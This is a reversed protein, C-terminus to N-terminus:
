TVRPYGDVPDGADPRRRGRRSSTASGACTTASRRDPSGDRSRSRPRGPSGVGSLTGDAGSGAARATTRDFRMTLTPGSAAGAGSRPGCRPRSSSPSRWRRGCGSWPTTAGACASTPSAGRDRLTVSLLSSQWEPRNRPDALYAFVVEPPHRSTSRARLVDVTTLVDGRDAARLGRRLPAPHARRGRAAAAAAADGSARDWGSAPSLLWDRVIQKDYSPQPRGPEWEDAPWFRSSDPTLVEDASCSRATAAAASSSSPTPWSSAGSARSRRPGARLGDLTLRRLEAARRRASPPSWPTTRSTRTTSASTPRPPRRSSRSRCAAATSWGPPCRSAASRAPARRLRAPRLRHPLRPRRVRGPVDRAARLRGRSRPVRRPRRDVGRPAPRPRRAPRVVVAVDPHPDRGQRPDRHRPRLRLRQDPRQRGDAAATPPLAYLDRVKGSHLHQLDGTM